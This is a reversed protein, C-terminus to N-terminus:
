GKKYPIWDKRDQELLLNTLVSRLNSLVILTKYWDESPSLDDENLTVGYDLTFLINDHTINCRTKYLVRYKAIDEPRNSLYDSLMKIFCNEKNPYDMHGNKKPKPYSDKFLKTLGELAATLALFGLAQHSVLIDIGDYSLYIASRIIRKHEEPLSYYESLCSDISCPFLIKNSIGSLQNLTYLVEDEINTRFYINPNQAFTISQYSVDSLSPIEYEIKHYKTQVAASSWNSIQNTYIDLQKETLKEVPLPPNMVGWRDLHGTYFFFHFATFLTLLRVIENEENITVVGLADGSLTKEVDVSYELYLPYHRAYPCNLSDSEIPYIQFRDKYRYVSELPTKSLIITKFYRQM